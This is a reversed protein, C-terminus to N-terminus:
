LTAAMAASNPHTDDLLREDWFGLSSWLHALALWLLQQGVDCDSGHGHLIDWLCHGPPSPPRKRSRNWAAPWEYRGALITPLISQTLAEM